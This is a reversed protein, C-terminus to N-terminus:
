GKRRRAVGVVGALALGILVAAQPEHIATVGTDLRASSPAYFYMVSGGQPITSKAVTDILHKREADSLEDDLPDDKDWKGFQSRLGENSEHEEASLGAFAVGSAFLNLVAVTALLKRM